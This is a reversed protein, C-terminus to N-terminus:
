ENIEGSLDHLRSDDLVVLAVADRQAFGIAAAGFAAALGDEVGFSMEIVRSRWRGADDRGWPMYVGGALRWGRGLFLLGLLFKHLPM